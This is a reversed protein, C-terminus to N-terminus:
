VTKTVPGSQFLVPGSGAFIVPYGTAIRPNRILGSKL